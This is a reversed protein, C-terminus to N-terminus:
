RAKKAKWAAETRRRKEETEASEAMAHLREQIGQRMESSEERAM